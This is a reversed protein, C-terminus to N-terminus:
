WSTAPAELALKTAIITVPHGLTVAAKLFAEKAKAIIAFIRAVSGTL